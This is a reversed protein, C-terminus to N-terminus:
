RFLFDADLSLIVDANEFRYLTNVDTGFALRDGAHVSDRNVPEYKHWKARPFKELLQRLHDELTPSTITETLIRLGTGGAVREGEFDDNIATLFVKGTSMGGGKKE